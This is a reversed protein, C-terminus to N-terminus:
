HRVESPNGGVIGIITSWEARFAAAIEHGQQNTIGAIEIAVEGDNRNYVKTPRVGAVSLMALVDDVNEPRILFRSIKANM